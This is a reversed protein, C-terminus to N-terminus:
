HSDPMGQLGKVYRIEGVHSWGHGILFNNIATAVTANPRQPNPVFDLRADDLSNIYVDTNRFVAEVYATVVDLPMKAAQEVEPEKFGTGFVKADMGLKEFWRGEEWVQPKKLWNSVAVDEVRATHWFLFGIPNAKPQPKWALQAPTLGKVDNLIAQHMGNLTVQVFQTAKM